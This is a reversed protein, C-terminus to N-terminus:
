RFRFKEDSLSKITLTLDHINDGDMDIADIMDCALWIKQQHPIMEM